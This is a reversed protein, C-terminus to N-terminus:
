RPFYLRGRKEVRGERLLYNIPAILQRWDLGLERGLDVLAIGEEHANIVELARAALEEVEPTTRRTQERPAFFKGIRVLLVAIGLAIFLQGLAQLLEM